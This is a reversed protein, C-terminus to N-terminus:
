RTRRIIQSVRMKSLGAADAITQCTAGNAHADRIAEDRRQQQVEVEALLERRRREYSKTLNLSVGRQLHTNYMGGM